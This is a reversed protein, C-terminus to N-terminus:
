ARLWTAFRVSPTRSRSMASVWYHLEDILPKVPCDKEREVIEIVRDWLPDLEAVADPSLAVEVLTMTTGLGPDLSTSRHQPRMVHALARLGVGVDGGARLWSDIM